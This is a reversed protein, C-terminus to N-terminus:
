LKQHAQDMNNCDQKTPLKWSLMTVAFWKGKFVGDLIEKIVLHATMPGAELFLCHHQAGIKLGHLIQLLRTFIIDRM